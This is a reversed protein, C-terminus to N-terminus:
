FIPFQFSRSTKAIELHIMGQPPGTFIPGGEININDSSQVFLVGAYSSPENYLLGVHDFAGLHKAVDAKKTTHTPM